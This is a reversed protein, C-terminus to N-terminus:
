SKFAKKLLEVGLKSEQIIDKKNVHITVPNALDKLFRKAVKKDTIKFKKDFSSTPM